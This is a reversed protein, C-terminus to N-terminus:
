GLRRAVRKFAHSPALLEIGFVDGSTRLDVNFWHPHAFAVTEAAATEGLEAPKRQVLYVYGANVVRDYTCKEILEAELSDAAAAYGEARLASVVAAVLEPLLDVLRHNMRMSVDLALFVILGLIPSFVLGAFDLLGFNGLAFSSVAAVLPLVVIYLGLYPRVRFSFIPTIRGPASHLLLWFTVGALVVWVSGVLGALPLESAVSLISAGAIAVLLVVLFASTRLVTLRVTQESSM